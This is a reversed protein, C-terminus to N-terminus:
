SKIQKAGKRFNRLRANNVNIVMGDQIITECAQVDRIGNEEILEVMCKGCNGTRLRRKVDYCLHPVHIGEELLAFLITLNANAEVEIGDVTVRIRGSSNQSGM